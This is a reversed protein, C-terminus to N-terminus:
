YTITFTANRKPRSKTRVLKKQNYSKRREEHSKETIKIM